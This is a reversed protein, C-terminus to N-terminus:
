PNRHGPLFDVAVRRVVDVQQVIQDPARQPGPGVRGVGHHELSDRQRMGAPEALGLLEFARFAAIEPQPHQDALPLRHHRAAVARRLHEVFEDLARDRHRAGHGLVREDAQGVGGLDRLVPRGEVHEIGVLRAGLGQDLAGPRGLIGRERDFADGIGVAGLGAPSARPDRKDGRVPEGAAIGARM